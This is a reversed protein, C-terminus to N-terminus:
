EQILEQITSEEKRKRENKYLPLCVKLGLPFLYIFVLPIFSNPSLFDDVIFLKCPYKYGRLLILNNLWFSVFNNDWFKLNNLIIPWM